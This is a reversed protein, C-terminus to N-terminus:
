KVKLESLCKKIRWLISCIKWQLERELNQKPHLVMLWLAARRSLTKFVLCFIYLSSLRFVQKPVTGLFCLQDDTLAQKEGIVIICCTV